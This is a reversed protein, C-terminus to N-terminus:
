YNIVSSIKYRIISLFRKLEESDLTSNKLVILEIKENGNEIVFVNGNESKDNLRYTKINRRAAFENKVKELKFSLGTENKVFQQLLSKNISINKNFHSVCYNNSQNSVWKQYVNKSEPLTDNSMLPIGPMPVSIVSCPYVYLWGEDSIDNYNADVSEVTFGKKRLLSIVGSDGTLHAAGFAAFTSQRKIMAEINDAMGKNREFLIKAVFDSPFLDNDESNVLIALEGNVYHNIFTDISKNQNEDRISKMLFIIQQPVSLYNFVNLQTQLLELAEVKKGSKNAMEEFYEDLFFQNSNKNSSDKMLEGQSLMTALYIPKLREFLTIPLGISSQIKQQLSDYQSKTLFSEITKGSDMMMNSIVEERNLDDLKLEMAFVKCRAFCNLVSDSFHFVRKDRTHMTGYLYSNTKLGNGSIRWLLTGSTPLTVAKVIVTLFVFVISLYKIM